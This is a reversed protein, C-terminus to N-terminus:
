QIGLENLLREDERWQEKVKVFLELHLRTGLVSAIERRAATGIRKLMQGGRGIVIGKQSKKELVISAAVHLPKGEEEEFQDIIVASCFPIERRTHLFVKERIIEAVFQRETQDTLTDAPYLPDAEPLASYLETLVRDIGDGTKASIPVIAKPELEQQYKEMLPLLSQKETIDIKNLAAVIEVEELQSLQRILFEDGKGFGAKGDIMLLVVDISNVASLAIDVMRKHMKNFPKHIGPTDLFVIQGREDNHVGMIRNRTTQPKPSVAAIKEGLVANLFTSKGANPRGTISVLGSNM